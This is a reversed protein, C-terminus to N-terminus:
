LGKPQARAPLQWDTGSQREAFLRSRDFWVENREILEDRLVVLDLGTERIGPYRWGFDAQWKLAFGQETPWLELVEWRWGPFRFFLKGLYAALADKGNLGQRVAPDAYFCAPQYFALLHGTEQRTWAGLWRNAFGPLEEIEM